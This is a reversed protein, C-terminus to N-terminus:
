VMIRIMIWAQMEVIIKEVFNNVFNAHIWIFMNGIKLNTAYKYKTSFLLIRPVKENASVNCKVKLM